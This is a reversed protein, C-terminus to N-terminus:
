KLIEPVTDIEFPTIETFQKGAILGNSDVPKRGKSYDL